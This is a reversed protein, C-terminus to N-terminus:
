STNTHVMVRNPAHRATLLPVSIVLINTAIVARPLCMDRLRHCQVFYLIFCGCSQFKYLKSWFDPLNCCQTIATVTDLSFSLGLLVSYLSYLFYVKQQALVSDPTRGCRLKTSDPLIKRRGPRFYTM